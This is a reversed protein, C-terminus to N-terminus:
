RSIPQFGKHNFDLYGMPVAVLERIVSVCDPIAELTNMYKLSHVDSWKGTFLAETEGEGFTATVKWGPVHRM